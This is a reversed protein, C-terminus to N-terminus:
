YFAPLSQKKCQLKIILFYYTTTLSSFRHEETATRRVEENIRLKHLLLSRKLASKRLSLHFINALKIDNDTQDPRAAMWLCEPVNCDSVRGMRKMHVTKVQRDETSISWFLAVAAWIGSIM